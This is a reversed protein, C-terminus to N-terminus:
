IPISVNMYVTVPVFSGFSLQDPNVSVNLQQPCSLPFQTQLVCSQQQVLDESQTSQFGAVTVVASGVIHLNAIGNCACDVILGTANAISPDLVVPVLITSTSTTDVNLGSVEISGVRRELLSQGFSINPQHYLTLDLSRLIPNFLQRTEAEVERSDAVGTRSPKWHAAVSACLVLASFLFAAIAAISSSRKTM